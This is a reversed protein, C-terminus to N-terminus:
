AHGGGIKRAGAIVVAVMALGLVWEWAPHKLAGTAYGALKDLPNSIKAAGGLVPVNGAIHANELTHKGSTLDVVFRNALPIGLQGVGLGFPLGVGGFYEGTIQYSNHGLNLVKIDREGAARLKALYSALSGAFTKATAAPKTTKAM